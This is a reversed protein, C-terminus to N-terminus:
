TRANLIAFDLTLHWVWTLDGKMIKLDKVNKVSHKFIDEKYEQTDISIINKPDDRALSDELAVRSGPRTKLYNERPGPYDESAEGSGVAYRPFVRIEPIVFNLAFLAYFLLAQQCKQWCARQKDV